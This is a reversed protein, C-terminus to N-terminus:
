SAYLFAEKQSHHTRYYKLVANYHSYSKISYRCLSKGISMSDTLQNQNYLLLLARLSNINDEFLLSSKILLDPRDYVLLSLIRILQDQAWIVKKSCLIELTRFDETQIFDLARNRDSIHYVTSRFKKDFPNIGVMKEDVPM